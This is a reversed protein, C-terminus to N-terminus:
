LRAPLLEPTFLVPCAVLEGSATQLLLAEPDALVSVQAATLASLSSIHKSPGVGGALVRLRVHPFM